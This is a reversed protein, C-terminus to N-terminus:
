VYYEQWALGQGKQCFCMWSIEFRNSLMTFFFEMKDHREIQYIHEEITWPITPNGDIYYGGVGGRWRLTTRLFLGKRAIRNLEACALQRRDPPLIHLVDFSCVLDFENDKFQSLDALDAQFIYPKVRDPAQSIAYESIDVGRADFGRDRAEMVEFGKACGAFLITNINLPRYIREILELKYKVHPAMHHWDYPVIFGHFDGREFYGEVFHDNTFPTNDWEEKTIKDRAEM